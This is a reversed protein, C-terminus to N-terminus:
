WTSRLDSVPIYGESPRFTMAGYTSPNISFLCGPLYSQNVYFHMDLSSLDHSHLLAGKPINKAFEFLRSKEITPKMKVFNLQIPIPDLKNEEDKLKQLIYDIRSEEPTLRWVSNISLREAEKLFSEREDLYSDYLAISSSVSVAALINLLLKLM